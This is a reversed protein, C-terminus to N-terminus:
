SVLDEGLFRLLAERTIRFVRGIKVSQLSDSHILGYIANKSIGLFERVDNVSLVSPLDNLTQAEM